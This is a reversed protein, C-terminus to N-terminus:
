WTYSPVSAAIGISLHRMTRVPDYGKGEVEVAEEAEDVKGSKGDDSFLLQASLDGILYIVATCVM